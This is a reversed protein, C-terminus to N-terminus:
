WTCSGRDVFLCCLWWFTLTGRFIMFSLSKIPRFNKSIIADRAEDMYNGDVLIYSGHELLDGGDVSLHSGYDEFFYLLVM